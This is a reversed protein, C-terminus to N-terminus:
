ALLGGGSTGGITFIPYPDPGTSALTLRPQEIAGGGDGRGVGARGSIELKQYAHTLHTEVTRRTVFLQQAIQANTLDGAALSAVRLESATLADRGHLEDRRPRAGAAALEERALRALRLGGCVRARDLGQKLVERAERRQGARRLAAGLAVEARAHELPAETTELTRVAERLIAVENENEAVIGQAMQTIGIARPAGSRHVLRLEDAVLSRALDHDGLRDHCFASTSRWPLQVVWDFVVAEPDAFPELDELAAEFEGAAIRARARSFRAAYHNWLVPQDPIYTGDLLELAEDLEDREVLAEALWGNSTMFQVGAETFLRM